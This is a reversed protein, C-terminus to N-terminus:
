AGRKQWETGAFYGLAVGALMGIPGLGVLMAGVGGAAALVASKSVPKKASPPPASLHQVAAHPIKLALTPNKAVMKPHLIVVHLPMLTAGVNITLAPKGKQDVQGGLLMSVWTPPTFMNFNPSGGGLPAPFFKFTESNSHTKNFADATALLLTYPDPIKYGNLGMEWSHQLARYYTLLFAKAQPPLPGIPNYMIGGAGNDTNGNSLVKFGGKDKGKKWVTAVPGRDGLGYLEFGVVEAPLTSDGLDGPVWDAALDLWSIYGTTDLNEPITKWRARDNLSRTAFDSLTTWNSDTPGFAQTQTFCVKGLKYNCSEAPKPAGLGFASSLLGFAEGAIGVVGAAALGFPPPVALALSGSILPLAGEVATVVNGSSFSHVAGEAAPGLNQIVNYADTAAAPAYQELNEKVYSQEDPTLGAYLDAVGGVSIPM